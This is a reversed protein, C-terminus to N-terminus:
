AEQLERKKVQYYGEKVARDIVEKPVIAISVPLIQHLCGYGGAFIFISSKTTSPNKGAWDQNAWSEVEKQHFYNGAKERCWDRSTKIVGGIYYYFELALDSAVSQQYSRSYNFLLDKTIQKSYRLLKGDDTDTGKIFDQVQKLMGQFSGGTNVNQTLVQSLPIKIQAQLGENLLLSEIDSIAQKQLAKMFTRNPNFGAFDAFYGANLDDIVQFTVTFQNLGEVYGSKDIAKAFARNAERIIARNEANQLIYGEKDLSLKKVIVIVDGYADNQASIVVKNLRNIAALSKDELQQALQEPTM